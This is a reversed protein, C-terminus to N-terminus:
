EEDTEKKEPVPSVSVQQLLERLHTILKQWDRFYRTEGTTVCLLQGRWEMEDSATEALWLRIGFFYTRPRSLHLQPKGNEESTM